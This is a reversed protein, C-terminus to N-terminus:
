LGTKKGSGEEAWALRYAVHTVATSLYLVSDGENLIMIKVRSTKARVAQLLYESYWVEVATPGKKKLM